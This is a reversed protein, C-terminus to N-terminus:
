YGDSQAAEAAHRLWLTEALRMMPALDKASPPSADFRELEDCLRQRDEPLLREVLPFVAREEFALHARLAEAFERLQDRLCLLATEDPERDQLSVHNFNDLYYRERRHEHRAELLPGTQWQAPGRALAPFFITEEKTGHHIDAFTRFFDAFRRLEARDLPADPKLNRAFGDLADLAQRIVRHDRLMTDLPSRM